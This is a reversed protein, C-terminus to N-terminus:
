VQDWGMERDIFAMLLNVIKTVQVDDLAVGEQVHYWQNLCGRCCAACAHQAVFTPHGKMPTQHGDNKPFAPALRTRVFDYTHQEIVDRGKENAYAKEKASLHFSARFKSRQLKDLAQAITQMFCKRVVIIIFKVCNKAVERKHKRLYDNINRYSHYKLSGNM